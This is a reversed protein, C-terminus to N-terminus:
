EGTVAIAYAPGATAAPPPASGNNLFLEDVRQSLWRARRQMVLNSLRWEPRANPDIKLARDLLSEFESRDQKAVAVTEAMALFPAAMQRDTLRV